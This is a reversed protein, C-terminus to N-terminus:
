YIFGQDVDFNGHFKLSEWIIRFVHVMGEFIDKTIENKMELSAYIEMESLFRDKQLRNGSM